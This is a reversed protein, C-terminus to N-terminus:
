RGGVCTLKRNEKRHSDMSSMFYRRAYRPTESSCCSFPICAAEFVSLRSFVMLQGHFNLSSLKFWKEFQLKQFPCYTNVEQCFYADSTLWTSCTATKAQVVGLVRCCPKSLRKMEDSLPRDQIGASPRKDTYM